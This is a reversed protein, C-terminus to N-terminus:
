KIEKKLFNQVPTGSDFTVRGYFDFIIGRVKVGAGAFQGAATVLRHGVDMIIEPYADVILEFAHRATNAQEIKLAFDPDGTVDCAWKSLKGLLLRSKAAHTHPVGQAMKVAKGFFVALVVSNFERLAAEELSLKFFDGIQIFAEEPLDNLLAQAFRESRRGTTLVISSAKAARAVDMASKITAIYADHSMPRVVGTTGLISLGGLVGLRANLTKQALEEGKPVFVEVCVRVNRNFRKLVAEVTNNIMKRPGSNIAPEGVPIELGPKTVRGVGRGGKIRIRNEDGGSTGHTLTVRAGIEARHTIDPDDGADKIVTCIASESAARCTHIPIDVTGGSLFSVSVQAPVRRSLIATLAGKAAAAAATGTTFGSRLRKPTKKM